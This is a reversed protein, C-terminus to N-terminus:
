VRTQERTGAKVPAGLRRQKALEGFSSIAERTNKQNHATVGTGRQGVQEPRKTSYLSFRTVGRPAKKEKGGVLIPLSRKKGGDLDSIPQEEVYSQRTKQSKEWNWVAKGRTLGLDLTRAKKMAPAHVGRKTL